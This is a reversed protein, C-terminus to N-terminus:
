HVRGSELAGLVVAASTVVRSWGRGRHYPDVFVGWLKMRHTFRSGRMRISGATAILTEGEEVAIFPM